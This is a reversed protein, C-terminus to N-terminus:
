APCNTRRRRRVWPLLSALLWLSSPRARSARCACGNGTEDAASGGAGSSSAEGGSGSGTTGGAGSAAGMGGGQKIDDTLQWGPNDGEGAYAGRFTFGAKHTGNFDVDHDVDNAVKSM